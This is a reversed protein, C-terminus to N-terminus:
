LQCPILIQLYFCGEEVKITLFGGYKKVTHRISRLGFGHYGNKVKTSQPLGGRDFQLEQNLPNIIQIVLMQKEAYVMVDILRKERDENQSVSEIANDMANGFITYLDVPDMFDLLRGDAVCHAQIGNAECYLSKETLVTDLVENGTKALVEYIRVSREVEQLYEERREDSLFVRMAKIQHKLDHCKQNILAINEKSLDYQNKQQIRLRNMLDLEQQIASKQFLNHQLYLITTCYIKIFLAVLWASWDNIGQGWFRYLCNIVLILAWLLFASTLQRPGPHYSGADPMWRALTLGMVAQGICWILIAFFAPAPWGEPLTAYLTLTVDLWLQYTMQVWLGCYLLAKLPVDACLWLLLVVAVYSLCTDLWVINTLWSSALLSRAATGILFCAAAKPVWYAKHRLPVLFLLASIWLGAYELLPLLGNSWGM